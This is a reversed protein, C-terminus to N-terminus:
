HSVFPNISVLVTDAGSAGAAPSDIAHFAPRLIASLNAALAKAAGLVAELSPPVQLLGSDLDVVLADSPPPQPSGRLAARQIGLFYPAPCQLLDVALGAPAVPSYVHCWQLPHVAQRLWEGLLLAASQSDDVIVVVRCEVQM